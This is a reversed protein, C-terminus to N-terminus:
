WSATATRRRPALVALVKPDGKWGRRHSRARGRLAPLEGQRPAAIEEVIQRADQALLPGALALCIWITRNM